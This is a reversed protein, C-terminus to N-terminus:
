KQRQLSRLLIGEIVQVQLFSPVGIFLWRNHRMVFDSLQQFHKKERVVEAPTPMKKLKWQLM